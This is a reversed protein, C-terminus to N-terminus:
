RVQDADDPEPADGNLRDTYPGEPPNPRFLDRRNALTTCGASAFTAALLLSLVAFKVARLSCFRPVSDVRGGRQLNLTAPQSYFFVALGVDQIVM